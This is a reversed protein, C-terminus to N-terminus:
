GPVTFFGEGVIHVGGGVDVRWRDDDAAVDVVLSSPRGVFEGQSVVVRGPM